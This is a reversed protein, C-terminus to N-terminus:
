NSIELFMPVFGTEFCGHSFDWRGKWCIEGAASMTPLTTRSGFALWSAISATGGGKPKESYKERTKPSFALFGEDSDILKMKLM